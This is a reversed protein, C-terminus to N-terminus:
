APLNDRMKTIDEKVTPLNVKIIQWIINLDVNFYAHIVVNRLGIMRQWPIYAYQQRLNDPINRVAEGIVELNCLVADVVSDAQKFVAESLVATYHDTKEIADLHRRFLHSLNKPEHTSSKV